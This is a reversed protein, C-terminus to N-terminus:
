RRSAPVGTELAAIEIEIEGVELTAQRFEDSGLVAADRRGRAAAHLELLAERTQPGQITSTERASTQDTM